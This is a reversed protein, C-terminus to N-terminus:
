CRTLNGTDAQLRLCSTKEKMSPQHLPFCDSGQGDALGFVSGAFEVLM